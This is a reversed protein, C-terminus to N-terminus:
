TTSVTITRVSDALAISVVTYPSCDGAGTEDPFLGVNLESYTYGMGPSGDVVTCHTGVNSVGITASITDDIMDEAPGVAASVLLSFLADFKGEVLRNGSAQASSKAGIYVNTLVFSMLSSGSLVKIMLDNIVDPEAPAIADGFANHTVVSSTNSDFVVSGLSSVLVSSGYGGKANWDLSMTNNAVLVAGGDITTATTTTWKTTPASISGWDVDLGRGLNVIEVCAGAAETTFAGVVAQKQWSFIAGNLDDNYVPNGLSEFSNGTVTIPGFGRRVWCARGLPQRVQNGRIILASGPSSDDFGTTAEPLVPGGSIEAKFTHGLLPTVEYVVIGGRLGPPVNHPVLESKERANDIIQNDEITASQAAVLGVGCIPVQYWFSKNHLIRNERIVANISAALCVGGVCADFNQSFIPRITFNRVCNEILNRSIDINVAVIFVPAPNGTEYEYTSDFFEVTAIGSQGMNRIENDYIRIEEVPGLPLLVETENSASSSNGTGENDPCDPNENTIFLDGLVSIAESLVQLQSLPNPPPDERLFRGVSGLSIGSGWGGDITCGIIEVDYCGSAVNVGGIAGLEIGDFVTAKVSSDLLRLRTGALIVAAAISPVDDVEFACSRIEVDTAALVSVCPAAYEYTSSGVAGSAFVEVEEILIDACTQNNQNAEISVGVSSHTEIRLKRIQIRESGSIKVAPVYFQELDTTAAEPTTPAETKIISEPGCGEIIIDFKEDLTVGGEHEGALLCIKGGNPILEIAAELSNVQGFSREGDGVSITCCGGECLQRLKTRCDHEEVTIPPPGEGGMWELISLPAYFRRPGHPSVGEPTTLDWPVVREPTSPRAGIIWYDGPIGEHRVTVTLGTGALSHAADETYVFSEEWVRLYVYLQDGEPDDPNAYDGQHQSLWDLWTQSVDDDIVATKTTPDYSTLITTLMGMTEAVKEMNPLLAGWPLLEVTDGALPMSALDEPETLFTLTSQDPDVKVRFIKSANDYGWLLIPDPSADRLEVRIAQNQAAVYGTSTPEACLDEEDDSSTFGVELLAPSALEGSAEDFGAEPYTSTTLEEIFAAFEDACDTTDVGTKVMFRHMRRTRTSTDRGGLAVERLESDEIASVTQEWAHVYVLDNRGGDEYADPLLEQASDLQLWDSQTLFTEGTEVVLRLGGLYYSGAAIDFDITDTNNTGGAPTVDFDTVVSAGSVLMGDNPSGHACTIDLLTARVDETRLAVGENWDSDVIVRGQQLNVASYHKKPQFLNRSIDSTSM